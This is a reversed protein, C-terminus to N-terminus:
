AGVTRRGKYSRSESGALSHPGFVSRTTRLARDRPIFQSVTVLPGLLAVTM